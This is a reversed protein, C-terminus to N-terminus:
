RLADPWEDPQLPETPDYRIALPKLKPNVKLIRLAPKRKRIEAVAVGSRCIVIEEGAEAAAVLESLRSKAEHMNVTIM